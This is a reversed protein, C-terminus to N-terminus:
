AARLGGNGASIRNDLSFAGAGVSASISKSM